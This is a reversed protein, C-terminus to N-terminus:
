RPPAILDILTEGLRIEGAPFDTGRALVKKAELYCELADARNAVNVNLRGPIKLMMM